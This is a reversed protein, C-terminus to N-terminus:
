AAVVPGAAGQGPLQRQPGPLGSHSGSKGEASRLMASSLCPTDLHATDPPWTRVHEEGASPRDLYSGLQVDPVGTLAGMHLM